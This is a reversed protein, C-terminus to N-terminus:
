SRRERCALRSPPHQRWMPSPAAWPPLWAALAPPLPTTHDDGRHSDVCTPEPPEAVPNIGRVGSRSLGTAVLDQCAPGATTWTHGPPRKPRGHPQDRKLRLTCEFLGLM